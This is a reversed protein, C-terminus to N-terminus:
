EYGGDTLKMNRGDDIPMDNPMSEPENEPMHRNMRLLELKVLNRTIDVMKDLDLFDSKSRYASDSLRQMRAALAERDTEEEPMGPSYDVWVPGEITDIRFQDQNAFQAMKAFFGDKAALHSNRSTLKNGLDYGHRKMMGYYSIFADWVKIQLEEFSNGTQKRVWFTMQKKKLDLIITCEEFEVYFQRNSKVPFSNLAKLSQFYARSESWNNPFSIIEVVFHNCHRNKQEVHLPPVIGIGIGFKEIYEKGCQTLKWIHHVNKVLGKKELAEFHRRPTSERVGKERAVASIVLKKKQFLLDLYEKQKETVSFSLPSHRCVPMSKEAYKQAKRSAGNGTSSPM